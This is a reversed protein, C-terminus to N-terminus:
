NQDMQDVQQKLLAVMQKWQNLKGSRILAARVVENSSIAEDSAEFMDRLRRVGAPHDSASEGEASFGEVSTFLLILPLGEIPVTGSLALIRFSFEDAAKERERSERRSAATSWTDHHVHHGLEHAMLLRISGGVYLERIDDANKRNRFVAETMNPCLDPRLQAFGFPSAVAKLKNGSIVAATNGNIGDSLYSIYGATCAREGFSTDIALATALWDIVQILEAGIFTYNVGDIRKAQANANGTNAVVRYHISEEVARDAASLGTRIQPRFEGILHDARDKYWRLLQGIQQQNSTQSRSPTGALCLVMTASFLVLRIGM